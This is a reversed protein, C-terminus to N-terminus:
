LIEEDFLNDFLGDTGIILIDNRAVGLTRQIADNITDRSGGGLQYPFNFDHVQEVSRFIPTGNRILLAGCDGLQVLRLTNDQITCVLATSSGLMSATQAAAFELLELPTENCFVQSSRELQAATHHMLLRAYLQSNAKTQDDWGSVGDAVGIGDYRVFCADAGFGGSQLDHETMGTPLGAPIHLAMHTQARAAAPAAPAAAPAPAPPGRLMAEASARGCAEGVLRFSPLRPRSPGLRNFYEFIDGGAASSGNNSSSSGRHSSLAAKGTRVVAPHPAPIRTWLPPRLLLKSWGPLSMRSIMANITQIIEKQKSEKRM